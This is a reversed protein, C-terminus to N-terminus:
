DSILEDFFCDVSIVRRELGAAGAIMELSEKFWDDRLVFTECVGLYVTQRIDPGGPRRQDRGGAPNPRSVPMRDLGADGTFAVMARYAKWVDSAKCIAVVEDLSLRNEKVV